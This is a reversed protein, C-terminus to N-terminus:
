AYKRNGNKLLTLNTSKYFLHEVSFDFRAFASDAIEPRFDAIKLKTRFFYRNGQAPM